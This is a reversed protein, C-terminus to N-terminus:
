EVFTARIEGVVIRVNRDEGLRAELRSREVALELSGVQDYDHGRV